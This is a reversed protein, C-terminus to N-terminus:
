SWIFWFIINISIKEKSGRYVRHKEWIILAYYFKPIYWSPTNYYLIIKSAYRSKIESAFHIRKAKGRKKEEKWRYVTYQTISERRIYLLSHAPVRLHARDATYRHILREGVSLAVTLPEMPHCEVIYYIHMYKREMCRGRPDMM